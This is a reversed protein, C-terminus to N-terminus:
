TGLGVRFVGSGSELVSEFVTRESVEGHVLVAEIRFRLVRDERAEMRMGVKVMRLRPEYTRIIEELVRCFQRQNTADAFPTGTFDPIGYNVLSVRLEPLDDPAGLFRHRTNLLNQLDLRVADRLDRVDRRAHAGGHDGRREILRDLLPEVPVHGAGARTM